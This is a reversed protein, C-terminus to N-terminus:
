GIEVGKDYRKENNMCIATHENLNFPKAIDITIIKNVILHKLIAIGSGNSLNMDKDFKSCMSRLSGKYDVCKSIFAQILDDIDYTEMNNFGDIEALSYYSYLDSINNAIDKDIEQETVIGWDINRREFYVREIEFKQMVREKMLMDKQKITRAIEYIDGLPEKITILFDTTIVIPEKTQPHSPHKIGLEKAILITEELPLLPFQERIDIVKDSFELYYFYNRELDSLFEHQRGTTIGRIRSVRGSSPFDQITIWPKYENGEGLGKGNKIKKDIDLTRKRKVM